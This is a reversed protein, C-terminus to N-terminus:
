QVVLRGEQHGEGCAFDYTGPELAPVKVTAPGATLDQTLGLGSFVVQAMCGTAQGFEITAPVGAKLVLEAPVFTGSSTEVKISQTKGSKSIAAPVPAAAVPAAGVTVLGTGSLIQRVSEESQLSECFAVDVVSRAIDLTVDGVGEKGEFADILQGGQSALDVGENAIVAVSAATCPSVAGFGRTIKGDIVQAKANAGTIAVMGVAFLVVIVITPVLMNVKKAVPVAVEAPVKGRRSAAPAPAEPASAKTRGPRAKEITDNKVALKRRLAFVLAGVSCVLLVGFLVLVTTDSVPATTGGGASAAAVSYSFTLDVVEGAKVNEVTKTYYGYGEGPQLTAGPAAQVIQAGQPVRTMVAVRPVAQWATWKLASTYNAGDFAGMPQVIGEVQATRAKTLTFAYVDMGNVTSKAYTLAPDASPPGGLIEGIWQIQTGAPVALEAKYPLKAGPPLDGSVLLMTQQQDSQLTVDIRQWKAPAAAFAPAASGALVFVALAALLFRATKFM